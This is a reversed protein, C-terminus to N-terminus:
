CADALADDPLLHDSRHALWSVMEGDDPERAVLSGRLGVPEGLEQAIGVADYPDDARVVAAPKGNCTVTFIRM